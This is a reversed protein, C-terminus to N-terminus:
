FRTIKSNPKAKRGLRAQVEIRKHKRSDGLAVPQSPTKHVKKKGLSVQFLSGGSRQRGFYSPNCSPAVLV